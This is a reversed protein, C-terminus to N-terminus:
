QQSERTWANLAQAVEAADLYLRRIGPLRVVRLDGREILRRLTFSPIGTEASCEQLTKLRPLAATKM